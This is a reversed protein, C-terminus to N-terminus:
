RRHLKFELKQVARQPVKQGDIEKPKFKWRRIAQLAARDFVGKPHAEVVKADKVSGDETITFEIKVWGEVKRMEARVPYRPPVRVLPVLNTSPQIGSGATIGVTFASGLRESHLPIDLPPINIDPTQTVVQQTTALPMKPPPPEKEPPKPPERRTPPPLNPQPKLRVFDVMRAPETEPLKLNESSIMWQMLWFLGLSVLLGTASAALWLRIIM